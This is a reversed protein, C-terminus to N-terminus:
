IRLGGATDEPRSSQLQQFKRLTRICGQASDGRRWACPREPPYLQDLLLRGLVEKGQLDHADGVDDPQLLFLVHVVLLRHQLFDAVREQDLQSDRGVVGQRDGGQRLDWTSPPSTM